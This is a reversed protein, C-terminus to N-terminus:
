TNNPSVVKSKSGLYNQQIPVQLSFFFVVVIGSENTLDICQLKLSQTFVCRQANSIARPTMSVVVFM